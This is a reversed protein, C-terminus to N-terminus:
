VFETAEGFTPTTAVGKPAHILNWLSVQTEVGEFSM